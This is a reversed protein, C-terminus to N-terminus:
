LGFRPVHKACLPECGCPLGALCTRVSLRDPFRESDDARDLPSVGTLRTCRKIIQWRSQSDSKTECPAISASVWAGWLHILPPLFGIDERSNRPRSLRATHRTGPAPNSGAR